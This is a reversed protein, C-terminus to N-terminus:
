RSWFLLKLFRHRMYDSASRPKFFYDRATNESVRGTSSSPIRSRPRTWCLPRCLDEREQFHPSRVRLSQQRCVIEDASRIVAEFEATLKERSSRGM